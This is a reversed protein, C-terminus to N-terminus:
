RYPTLGRGHVLVTELPEQLNAAADDGFQIEIREQLVDQPHRSVQRACPIGGDAHEIVAPLLEAPEDRGPDICLGRRPDTIERATAAHEALQDRIGPRQPDSVDPQMRLRVPKGDTVRRHAREQAHRDQHATLRPPVEVEGLLGAPAEVILVLLRHPHEGVPRRHGDAVRPREARLLPPPPLELPAHRGVLRGLLDGLCERPLRIEVDDEVEHDLTTTGEDLGPAHVDAEDLALLDDHDIRRSLEVARDDTAPHREVPGEHAADHPQAPGLPQRVETLARREHELLLDISPRRQQHREQQATARDPHQRREVAKCSPGAKPPSSSRRISANAELAAFATAV